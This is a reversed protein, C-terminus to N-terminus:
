VSQYPLGSSPNLEWQKCIKEFLISFYGANEFYEANNQYQERTFGARDKKTEIHYGYADYGESDVETYQSNKTFWSQFNKYANVVTPSFDTLM